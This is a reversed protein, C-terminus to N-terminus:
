EEPIVPHHEEERPDPAAEERDQAALRRCVLILCVAVFFAVLTIALTVAVSLALRQTTRWIVAGTLIGVGNGGCVIFVVVMVSLLKMKSGSVTGPKKEENM